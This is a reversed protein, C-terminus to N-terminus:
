FIGSRSVSTAFARRDPALYEGFERFLPCPLTSLLLLYHINLLEKSYPLLGYDKTFLIKFSKNLKASNPPYFIRSYSRHTQSALRCEFFVDNVLKLSCVQNATAVDMKEMAKSFKCGNVVLPKPVWHFAWCLKFIYFLFNLKRVLLIVCFRSCSFNELHCM